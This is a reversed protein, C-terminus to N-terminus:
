GGILAGIVLFMMPPLGLLLPFAFAIFSGLIMVALAALISFSIVGSPTVSLHCIELNKETQQAKKPDAKLHLLNESVNCAKEYLSYHTPFLEQKFQSYERSTIKIEQQPTQNFEERVKAKYKEILDQYDDKAM